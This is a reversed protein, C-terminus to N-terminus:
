LDPVELVIAYLDATAVIDISNTATVAVSDRRSAPMAAVTSAGEIVFVFLGNELRVVSLWANQHIWLPSNGDNPGVVTHLGNGTPVQAQDYRPEVGQDQPIIWLQLFEVPDSTSGNFETHTLGISDKHAM